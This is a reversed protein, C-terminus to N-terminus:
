KVLSLSEPNPEKRHRLVFGECSRLSPWWGSYSDSDMVDKTPTILSLSLSLRLSRIQFQHQHRTSM